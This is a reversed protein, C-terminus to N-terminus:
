GLIRRYRIQSGGSGHSEQHQAEAQFFISAGCCLTLALIASGVFRVRRKM